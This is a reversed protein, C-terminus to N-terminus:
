RLGNPWERGARQRLALIYVIGHDSSFEQVVLDGRSQSTSSGLGSAEFDQSAKLVATAPVVVQERCADGTRVILGTIVQVVSAQVAIHAFRAFTRGTRMGGATDLSEMAERSLLVHVATTAETSETSSGM